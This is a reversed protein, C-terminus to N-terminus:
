GLNLHDSNTLVQFPPRSSLHDAGIDRAKMKQLDLPAWIMVSDVGNQCSKVDEVCCSRREEPYRQWARKEWIM